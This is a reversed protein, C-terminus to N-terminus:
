KMASKKIAVSKRAYNPLFDSIYSLDLLLVLKVLVSKYSDKWLIAVFDKLSPLKM